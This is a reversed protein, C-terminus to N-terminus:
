LRNNIAQKYFITLMLIYNYKARFNIFVLALNFTMNKLNLLQKFLFMITM